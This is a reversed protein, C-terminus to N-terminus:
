YDKALEKKNLNYAGFIMGSRESIDKRGLVAECICVKSKLDKYKVCYLSESLDVINENNYRSETINYLRIFISEEGSEKVQELLTTFLDNRWQKQITESINLSKYEDYVNKEERAM